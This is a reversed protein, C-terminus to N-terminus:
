FYGGDHCRIIFIALRPNTSVGLSLVTNTLIHTFMKRLLEGICGGFYVRINQIPSIKLIMLIKYIYTKLKLCM